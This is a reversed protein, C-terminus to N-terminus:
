TGPDREVARRLLEAVDELPGMQRETFDYYTSGARALCRVGMGGEDITCFAEDGVNRLATSEQAGRCSAFASAADDPNAARGRTFSWSFEPETVGHFWTRRAAPAALDLVAGRRPADTAPCSLREVLGDDRWYTRVDGTGLYGMVAPAPEPAPSTSPAPLQWGLLKAVAARLMGEAPADSEVKGSQKWTVLVVTRGVRAAGVTEVVLARETRIVLAEDGLALGRSRVPDISDAPHLRPDTCADYLRGADAESRTTSLEELVMTEDPWAWGREASAPRPVEFSCPDYGGGYVRALHRGHGFTADVWSTTLLLSADAVPERSSSPSSTPAEASAGPAATETTSASSQATPTPATTTTPTPQASATATPEEAVLQDTSGGGPAVLVLALVVAVIAASTGGGLLLLRRRGHGTM